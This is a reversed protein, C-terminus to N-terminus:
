KKYKRVEAILGVGDSRRPRIPTEHEKIYLVAPLHNQQM